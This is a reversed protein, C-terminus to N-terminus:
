TGEMWDFVYREDYDIQSKELLDLYEDKFSIKAHHLEQSDIYRIVTDLQSRSYSFAGFGEQWRFKGRVWRNQNIYRSSNAKIDRMLDSLAMDPKLGILLHIHDPMSNVTILKQQKNRTIGTIYKHLAEKHQRPLLSHRGQVAFVVHIYIQTYTNAMNEPPTDSRVSSTKNSIRQAVFM